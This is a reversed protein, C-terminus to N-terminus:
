IIKLIVSDIKPPPSFNNKGVDSIKQIEFAHTAIISIAKRNKQSQLYTKRCIRKSGYNCWSFFLDTCGNLQM